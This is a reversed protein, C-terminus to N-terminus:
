KGPDPKSHKGPDPPPPPPKGPPLQGDTTPDPKPSPKDHTAMHCVTGGRGGARLSTGDEPGPPAADGSLDALCDPSWVDREQTM